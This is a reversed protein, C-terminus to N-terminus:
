EVVAELPTESSRFNVVQWEGDNKQLITRIYLTNSDNKIEYVIAATEPSGTSKEISRGTVKENGKSLPSINQILQDLQDQSTAQKFASSTLAYASSTDAAQIDDIFKDSIKQPAKTGFYAATIAVVIIILIVGIIGLIIKLWKPLSKKSSPQNNNTPVANTQGVIPGSAQSQNTMPQPNVPQQNVPQSPATQTNQPEEPNM